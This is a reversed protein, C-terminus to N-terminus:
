CSPAAPTQLRGRLRRSGIERAAPPRRGKGHVLIMGSQWDIDDLNLTAVESARLGLKALMMLVACDRHGMATTRDCADLVKQVNEPPLFKPLGALRWRRISPLCDALAVLIFGKLHM